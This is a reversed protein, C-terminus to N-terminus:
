PTPSKVMTLWRKQGKGILEVHGVAIHVVTYGLIAQGVTLVQDNILALRGHRDIATAKLQLPQESPSPLLVPPALTEPRRSPTGGQGYRQWAQSVCRVYQQTEAFPPMTYGSTIVAQPGANYAALMLTTDGSFTQKLLALYRVGAAVNHYPDFANTVGLLAQTAPMLQMLGQAGRPSQARPDFRSECTIVAKVLAPDLGYQQAMLNIFTDLAEPAAALALIPWWLCCGLLSLHLLRQWASLRRNTRCPNSTLV